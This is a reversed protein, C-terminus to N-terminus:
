KYCSFYNIYSYYSFSDIVDIIPSNFNTSVKIIPYISVQFDKLKIFTFTNSQGYISVSGNSKGVVLYRNNYSFGFECIQLSSAFIDDSSDIIITQILDGNISYQFVKNKQGIYIFNLEEDYILCKVNPIPIINITFGNIISWIIVKNTCVSCCILQRDNIRSFSITENDSLSNISYTIQKQLRFDYSLDDNNIKINTLYIIVTSSRLTVSFFIQRSSLSCEKARFFLINTKKFIKSGINFSITAKMPNVRSRVVKEFQEISQLINKDSTQCSNSEFNTSLPKILNIRIDDASLINISLFAPHPSNFIKNPMQGSNKVFTARTKAYESNINYNKNQYSLPNYLNLSSIAEHGTQKYGFNLDIWNSINSRTIQDELVKRHFQIFESPSLHNESNKINLNKFSPLEVTENVDAPFKLKNKSNEFLDSMSFLEPIIESTTFRKISLSNIVSTFIRNASDFGSHFKLSYNFFPYMRIMFSSVISGNSINEYNHYKQMSYRAKLMEHEKDDDAVVAIPLNLDRQNGHLFARFNVDSEEDNVLNNPMEYNKLLRPFIPYSFLDEFSRGSFLNLFNLYEYNSITFNLWFETLQNIQFSFMYIPLKLSNSNIDYNTLENLLFHVPEKFYLIFPSMTITYIGISYSNGNYTCPHAFIISSNKLKLVPIGLFLIIKGFEGNSISELFNKYFISQTKGSLYSETNNTQIDENNSRYIEEIKTESDITASCNSLLLYKAKYKFLLSPIDFNKRILRCNIIKDPAGFTAIFASFFTESQINIHGSYLSLNPYKSNKVINIIFDLKDETQIKEFINLDNSNHTDDNYFSSHNLNFISPFLVVPSFGPFYFPSIMYSKITDLLINPKNLTIQSKIMQNMFYFSSYKKELNRLSSNIFRSTFVKFDNCIKTVNNQYYFLFTALNDQSIKFNHSLKNINFSKGIKNKIKDFHKNYKEILAKKEMELNDSQFFEDISEHKNKFLSLISRDSDNENAKLIRSLLNAILQNNQPNETDCILIKLFYIFYQVSNKTFDLTDFIQNLIALLSIKTDNSVFPFGFLFYDLFTSLQENPQHKYLNLISNSIKDRQTIDEENILAHMSIECVITLIQNPMQIESLNMTLFKILTKILCAFSSNLVITLLLSFIRFNQIESLLLESIIVSVREHYGELFTLGLKPKSFSFNNNVNEVFIPFFNFLHEDKFISNDPVETSVVDYFFGQIFYSVLYNNKKLLIENINCKLVKIINHQITEILFSTESILDKKENANNQTLIFYKKCLSSFASFILPFIFLSFAKYSEYDINSENLSLKEDNTLLQFLKNWLKHNAPFRSAVRCMLSLNQNTFLESSCFNLLKIIFKIAHPKNLLLAFGMIHEIDFFNINYKDELGLVLDIFQNSIKQKSEFDFFFENKTDYFNSIISFHILPLLINIKQIYNSNNINNSFFNDLIHISLMKLFILLNTIVKSNRFSYILSIFYSLFHSEQLENLDLFSLFAHNKEIKNIIFDFFRILAIEPFDTWIFLFQSFFFIFKKTKAIPNDIFLIVKFLEILYSSNVDSSNENLYLMIKYVYWDFRKLVDEPPANLNQVLFLRITQCALAIIQYNIKPFSILFKSFNYKEQLVRFVSLHIVFFISGYKPDPIGMNQIAFEESYLQTDLRIGAAIKNMVIYHISSPYKKSGISELMFIGNSNTIEFTSIPDSDLCIQVTNNNKNWHFSIEYWKSLQITGIKNGNKDLLFNRQISLQSIGEIIFLDTIKKSSTEFRLKFYVNLSITNVSLFSPEESPYIDYINHAGIWKKKISKIDIIEKDENLIYSLDDLSIYQGLIESICPIFEPKIKLKNFVPLSYLGLLYFDYQHTFNLRNMIAKNDSDLLLLPILSPIPIPMNNTNPLIYDAIENHRLCFIPSNNPLNIICEDFFHDNTHKVLINITKLISQCNDKCIVKIITELIDFKSYKTYYIFDVFERSKENAFYMLLIQAEPHSINNILFIILIPNFMVKISELFFDHLNFDQTISFNRKSEMLDIMREYLMNLIKNHNLQIDSTFNQRFINSYDLVNLFLKRFSPFNIFFVLLDSASRELIMKEIFNWIDFLLSNDKSINILWSFIDNYFITNQIPVSLCNIVQNIFDSTSLSNFNSCKMLFITVMAFLDQSNLISFNFWNELDFKESNAFFEFIKNDCSNFFQFISLRQNSNIKPNKYFNNLHKLIIENLENPPSCFLTKNFFLEMFDDSYSNVFYETVNELFQTNDLIPIIDPMTNFIKYIYKAFFHIITDITKVEDNICKSNTNKEDFIQSIKKTLNQIINTHFSLETNLIIMEFFSDYLYFSLFFNVLRSDKMTSIINIYNNIRNETFLEQCFDKSNFLAILCNNVLGFFYNADNNNSSELSSILEFYRVFDNFSNSKKAFDFILDYVEIYRSSYYIEGFINNTLNIISLVKLLCEPIILSLNLSLIEMFNIYLNQSNSSIMKKKNFNEQDFFIIFNNLNQEIFKAKEKKSTIQNFVNLSFSDPFDIKLKNSGFRKKMM